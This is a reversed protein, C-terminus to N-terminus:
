VGTPSKRYESPTKQTHQKFFTTFYAPSSFGTEYAIEAMSKTSESLLRRAKKLRIEAIYDIVNMDLLAQVKRYLQVRSLGMDRSLREVGFTADTLGQEILGTLENLFKKDQRNGGASQALFDSAYRRQWKERNALTTRIVELLYATNFPKTIYADAGARTGEIRQEIQGQATLLLVPIHSTRLDAKVRQTLQLGDMGPLMIDSIILDPIIELAREWGSEGTNESVIDFEHDLRAALFTRLDDNDEVVLLTGSQGASLNGPAIAENEDEDLDALLRQSVPSSPNLPNRAVSGSMEEPSLHANGLPLLITFTTGKDKESLVNIEGQHLQIFEMSLALGLGKSLNFPRTGSFFLDFAHAQEDPTMGEGNDQVQIRVQQNVVDLRVHILGGKPTYKFANSLLNVIVKDLKESDFWVPLTPKAPIFQLDIRKKEAKRKFDQVIDDIFAILDQEATHLQQKGADTKRLDLMQDILRLLRYANKQILTLNSKLEHTSVTRKSLLDETPTLILSLPTNFEHSIYSYFRLKEETALRAQQSVAEIKDKQKRIEGNQNELTRYAVQKSRFLYLAWGGLLIVVLLSALTFYLTNKQSTYTETLKDIRQSQREIDVQQALLKDSQAKLARINSADVQISNLIQERKVSKGELVRTATEIAEEGGTPYLFSARLVGNTIAQMGANPGPLADIGVFDLQHQLGNQKWVESAGLAMVDNHAFLVDAEKLAKLESAVVHRVTDREWQGNLEKVVRINPFKRLEERFGRHREQAPSSSPLGWVEVVRGRGKLYNGIFTGALRGIEVNDGGIYANYSETKIKRDLLIVPIGKKFVAEIVKTFPTTENPSIILLDIGQDVLSQVQSIQRATSNGADEYLLTYNPHFTLERKMDNLMTKRWEDGGTCQSFGIKYIEPQTRSQCNGLLLCSTM